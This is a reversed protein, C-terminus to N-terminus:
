ATASVTLRKAVPPAPDGLRGKRFRKGSMDSPPEYLWGRRTQGQSALSTFSRAAM